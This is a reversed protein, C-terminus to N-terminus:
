GADKYILRDLAYKGQKVSFLMLLTMLVASTLCWACTAGIVFPELFTLYISFMTGAVTMVLLLLAAVVGVGSDNLRTGIWAVFIILYGVLGLVGVPVLGFLRAYDSQQVTNCDGIPGCVAVTRTTEVYSLYGAVVFGIVCLLPVFWSVPKPPLTTIDRLIYLVTWLTAGLMGILVLVSFTNGVSDRAFKEQWTGSQSESIMIGPTTIPFPTAQAPTTPQLTPTFPALAEQTAAATSVQTYIATPTVLVELLGPIDPWDQGGQLLKEEILGPFLEPIEQDGVLVDSGVILTPVGTREGPIQFREIAAQYLTLGIPQNVDVGVIELQNGFQQFIPPLHTQVVAQCHSCNPSYFLVARVVPDPDQAYVVTTASALLMLCAVIRIGLYYHSKKM